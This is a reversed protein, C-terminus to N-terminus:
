RNTRRRLLGVTEQAIIEEGDDEGEESVAQLFSINNTQQRKEQLLKNVLDPRREAIVRIQPPMAKLIDDEEMIHHNNQGISPRAFHQESDDTNNISTSSYQQIHNSSDSEEEEIEIGRPTPLSMGSGFRDQMIKQARETMELTSDSTNSQRQQMEVDYNSSSSSAYWSPLLTEEGGSRKNEEDYYTSKNPILEDISKMLQVSIGFPIGFEILNQVTLYGLSRGDIAQRKLMNITTYLSRQQIYEDERSLLCASDSSSQLVIGNNSNMGYYQQQKVLQEYAWSSVQIVTWTKYNREDLLSEYPAARRHLLKIIILRFTFIVNSLCSCIM